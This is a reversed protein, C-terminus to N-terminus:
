HKEANEKPLNIKVGEVFLCYNGDVARWYASQKNRKAEKFENLLLKRQKQFKAPLHETVYVYPFYEDYSRRMENYTKLNKASNFIRNKDQTNILKVIIPRHMTKGNKKLPYQPLRHIDVLEIDDPNINLGDNLFSKFKQVTAERKEWANGEDEKIGHILVNLRKNYSEQMIATKEYELMFKEFKNMKEDLIDITEEKATLNRELAATKNELKFIRSNFSDVKKELADLKQLIQDLKHELNSMETSYNASSKDTVFNM